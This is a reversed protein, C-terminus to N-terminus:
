HKVAGATLGTVFWKQLYIFLLIVPISGMVTYAMLRAWELGVDGWFQYLGVQVSRMDPSITLTSSFIFDNWVYVFIMLAAAALGPLTLPLTVRYMAQIRTCGDIVAAEEL